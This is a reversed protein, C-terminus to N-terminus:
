VAVEKNRILFDELLFDLREVVHQGSFEVVRGGSHRHIIFAKSKLYLLIPLKLM